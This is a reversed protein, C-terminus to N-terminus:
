EKFLSNFRERGNSDKGKRQDQPDHTKSPKDASAPKFYDCFNAREKDFVPEQITERCDWHSGPSYFRCNLCIRLEKGCTPCLSSRYIPTNDEIRTGCFHCNMAGYYGGKEMENM